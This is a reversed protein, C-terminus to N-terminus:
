CQKRSHTAKAIGGLFELLDWAADEDDQPHGARVFCKGFMGAIEREPMKAEYARNVFLFIATKTGEADGITRRLMDTTAQELWLRFKGAAEGTPESDFDHKPFPLDCMHSDYGGTFPLRWQLTM